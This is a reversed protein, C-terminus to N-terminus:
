SVVTLIARINRVSLFAPEIVYFLLAAFLLAALVGLEGRALVRVAHNHLGSM